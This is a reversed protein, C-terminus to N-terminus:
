IVDEKIEILNKYGKSRKLLEDHTGCITTKNDIYIVKNVYKIIELNNSIYLITKEKYKNNINNLIKSRTINDIKNLAEDLIIIPKDNTLGRAIAIRQKQGGSLKVGKEGVLTDYKRNLRKIDDNIECDRLVKELKTINIDNKLFINEKITGSFM